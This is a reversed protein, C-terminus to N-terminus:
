VCVRVESRGWVRGSGPLVGLEGTETKGLVERGGREGDRSSPSSHQSAWLQNPSSQMISITRFTKGQLLRVVSNEAVFFNLNSVKVQELHLLAVSVPAGGMFHAWPEQKGEAPVSLILLISLTLLCGTGKLLAAKHEKRHHGTYHGSFHFLSTKIKSQDLDYNRILTSCIIQSVKPSCSFPVSSTGAKSCIHEEREKSM